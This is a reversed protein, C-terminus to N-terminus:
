TFILDKKLKKLFESDIGSKPNNVQLIMITGDDEFCSLYYKKETLKQDVIIYVSVDRSAIKSTNNQNLISVGDNIIESYELNKDTATYKSYTRENSKYKRMKMFFFPKVCDPTYLILFFTKTNSEVLKEKEDKFKAFLNQVRLLSLKDDKQLVKHFTAGKNSIVWLRLCDVNIKMMNAVNQYLDEATSRKDAVVKICYKLNIFSTIGVKCNEWICKENYIQIIEEMKQKRHFM